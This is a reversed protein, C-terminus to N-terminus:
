DYEIWYGRCKYFWREADCLCNTHHTANTRQKDMVRYKYEGRYGFGAGESAVQIYDEKKYKIQQLFELQVEHSCYTCSAIVEDMVVELSLSGVRNCKPCTHKVLKESDEITM